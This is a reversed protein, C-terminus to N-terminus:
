VPRIGHVGECETETIDTKKMMWRDVSQRKNPMFFLMIIM